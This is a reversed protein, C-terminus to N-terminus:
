FKTSHCVRPYPIDEVCGPPIPVFQFYNSSGNEAECAFEACNQEENRQEARSSMQEESALDCFRLSYGNGNAVGVNAFFRSDCKKLVRRLGFFFIIQLRHASAHAPEVIVLVAQHIKEEHLRGRGVNVLGRAGQAGGQVVVVAVAGESIDGCSGADSIFASPGGTSSPKVVVFIAPEIQHDGIVDLPGGLIIKVTAFMAGAVTRVAM